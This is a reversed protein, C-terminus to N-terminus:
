VALKSAMWCNYSMIIPQGMDTNGAINHKSSFVMKVLGMSYKVCCSTFLSSMGVLVKSSPDMVIGQRHTLLFFSLITKLM